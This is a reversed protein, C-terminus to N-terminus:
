VPRGSLAHALESAIGLTRSWKGLYRMDLKGRMREVIGAADIFDQARGAKLKQLLLDEASPFWVFRGDFRKRKRRSFAVADHEDRTTLFDAATRCIRFRKQVDRIMTKYRSWLEDFQFGLANLKAVFVEPLDSTQIM